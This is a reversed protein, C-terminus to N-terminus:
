GREVRVTWPSTDVVAGSALAGVGCRGDGHVALPVQANTIHILQAAELDDDCQRVGIETAENSLVAARVSRGGPM